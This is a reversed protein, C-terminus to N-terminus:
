PNKGKILKPLDKAYEDSTVGALYIVHALDDKPSFALVEAGHSVTVSGDKEKVAEEVHVGVSSAAAEITDFDGTLGIFDTDQAALWKGLKKPTDREPDTTVFVVQLKDQEAKPLQQKAIALDSMTTPCVDPCQTYGFFLLTPKGATEKLLEYKKGSTDTLVLDPKEKPNDLVTGAKTSGGSIEVAPTAGDSSSGCAALALLLAAGAAARILPAIRTLM